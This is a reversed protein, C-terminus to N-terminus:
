ITGDQDQGYIFCIYTQKVRKAQELTKKSSKWLSGKLTPDSIKQLCM